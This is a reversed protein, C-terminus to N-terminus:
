RSPDIPSTTSEELMSHSPEFYPVGLCKSSGWEAAGIMSRGGPFSAQTESLATPPM